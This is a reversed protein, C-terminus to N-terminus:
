NLGGITQYYIPSPPGFDVPVGSFVSVYPKVMFQDLLILSFYLRIVVLFICEVGITLNSFGWRTVITKGSSVWDLQDTRTYFIEYGGASVDGHWTLVGSAKSDQVALILQLCTM